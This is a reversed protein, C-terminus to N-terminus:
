EEEPGFCGGITMLDRKILGLKMNDLLETSDKERKGLLTFYLRMLDIHGELTGVKLVHGIIEVVEKECDGEFVNPIVPIFDLYDEDDLYLRIGEM